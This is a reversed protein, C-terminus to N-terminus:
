EVGLAMFRISFGDGSYGKGKGEGLALAAM